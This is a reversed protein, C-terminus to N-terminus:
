KTNYMEDPAELALGKEIMYRCDIHHSYFFDTRQVPNEYNSLEKREEETMSSMPRLYPRVNCEDIDFGGCRVNYQAIPESLEDIIVRNEQPYVAYLIGTLFRGDRYSFESDSDDRKPETLSVRVSYPLRTCLDKIILEMPYTKLM